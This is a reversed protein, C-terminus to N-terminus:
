KKTEADVINQATDEHKKLTPLLDTLLKKLKVDATNDRAATVEAIDKKHDDLMEQGFKQDFMPDSAMGSMDGASDAPTAAALDIKEQKALAAVKKDAAGHDKELMKGYDKVAHSKGNKQAMKGAAIEKQDSKHLKGLVTATDPPDAAQTDKGATILVGVTMGCFVATRINKTM